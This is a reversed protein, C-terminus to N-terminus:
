ICGESHHRSAQRLHSPCDLNVALQSVFVPVLLGASFLRSDVGDNTDKRYHDIFFALAVPSLCDLLANKLVRLRFFRFWWATMVRLTDSEFAEVPLNEHLCQCLHKQKRNVCLRSLCDTEMMPHCRAKRSYTSQGICFFKAIATVHMDSDILLNSDRKSCNQVWFDKAEESNMSDWCDLRKRVIMAVSFANATKFISRPVLFRAYEMTFRDRKLFDGILKPFKESIAQLHTELLYCTEEVSAYKQALKELIFRVERNADHDIAWELLDSDEHRFKVPAGEKKAKDVIKGACDLQGKKIAAWFFPEGYEDVVDMM